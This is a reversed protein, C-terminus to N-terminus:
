FIPGCKRVMVVLGWIRESDLCVNLMEVLDVDIGVPMIGGVETIESVM